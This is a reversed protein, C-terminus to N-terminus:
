NLPQLKVKFIMSKGFPLSEDVAEKAPFSYVETTTTVIPSLNMCEGKPLARIEALRPQINSHTATIKVNKEVLQHTVRFGAFHNVTSYLKEMKGSEQQHCRLRLYSRQLGKSWTHSKNSVNIEGRYAQNDNSSLDFNLVYPSGANVLTGTTLFLSLVLLRKLM